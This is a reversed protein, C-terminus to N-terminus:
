KRQLLPTQNPIAVSRDNKFDYMTKRLLDATSVQYAVFSNIYALQINSLRDQEVALDQTTMNGNEFRMQTIRFSQNAVDLNYKNIAFRKESELVSRVITRIEREIEKIGQEFDLELQQLRFEERSILSKARKSDIIPYSLTLALGLNSPRDSMNRFSSSILQGLSGHERTSLGTLDYYGSINGSMRRERKAQKLKIQQNLIQLSDEKIEMRNAIGEQIALDMDIPYSAFEMSAILEFEDSLDLGILLKFEDRENELKSESEMVKVEDQAVSIQAILLEGEPVDGSEYKLATIRLAERSNELREKYMQHEYETQYLSYFSRTVDFIIDLQTRTYYLVSEQYSLEAIKMDEKLKNGSFIPQSFSLAVRSYFQNRKYKTQFEDSLTTRYNEYYMRSSLSLNGGTPLIYKFNLDEGAQLSSITNYVPLGDIQNIASLKQDWSPAFLDLSLLPKFQAKTYLYNAHTSAINKQHSKITYSEELAINIADECSLSFKGQAVCLSSDIWLSLFLSIIVIKKM